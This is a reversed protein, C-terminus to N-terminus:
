FTMEIRKLITKRMYARTEEFNSIEEEDFEAPDPVFIYREEGTEEDEYKESYFVLYQLITENLVCEEFPGIRHKELLEITPLSSMFLFRADDKVDPDATNRSVLVANEIMKNYATESIKLLTSPSKKSRM